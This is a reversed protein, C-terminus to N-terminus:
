IVGILYIWSYSCVCATAGGVELPTDPMLAEWLQRLKDAVPQTGLAGDPGSGVPPPPESSPDNNVCKIARM